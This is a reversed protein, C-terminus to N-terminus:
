VQRDLIWDALERVAGEGGRRRTVRRAARRVRPHADRPAVPWGVEAFAGLDPLDDGIFVAQAPDIGAAALWRRVLPAKPEPHQVTLVDVGLSDARTRMAADARGTVWAVRVGAERLQVLGHGDRTGFAKAVGGAADYLLQGTTLVGDVDCLVAAVTAPIM